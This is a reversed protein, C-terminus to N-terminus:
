TSSGASHQPCKRCYLMILQFYREGDV